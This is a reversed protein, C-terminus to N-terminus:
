ASSEREREREREREGFFCSWSRVGVGFGLVHEEEFRGVTQLGVIRLGSDSCVFHYCSQLLSGRVCLGVALVEESVLAFFFFDKFFAFCLDLTETLELGVGFGFSLFFFCVLLFVFLCVFLSSINTVDLHM